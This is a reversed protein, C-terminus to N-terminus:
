YSSDLLLNELKLDRHIVDNKHLFELAEILQKFYYRAIEESLKEGSTIVYDFFDGGSALELVVYLVDKSKGSSKVLKGSWSYEVMGIINDHMPIDKLHIVENNLLTIFLDVDFEDSSEAVDRYMIKMAYQKKTEQHIALKVRFLNSSHIFKSQTGAKEL